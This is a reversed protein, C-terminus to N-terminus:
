IEHVYRSVKGEDCRNRHLNEVRSQPISKFLEFPYLPSIELSMKHIQLSKSTFRKSYKTFLLSSSSFCTSAYFFYFCVRSSFLNWVIKNITISKLLHSYTEQNRIGGVRLIKKKKQRKMELIWMWKLVVLIDSHDLFTNQFTLFLGLLLKMGWVRERKKWREVSDWKFLTM